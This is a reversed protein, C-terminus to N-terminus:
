SDTPALAGATKAPKTPIANLRRVLSSGLRIFPQEIFKYTLWSVPTAVALTAAFLLVYALSPKEFIVQLHAQFVQIIGAMLVFHILYFSFSIRGLFGIAANVLLPLPYIALSLIVPLFGLAFVVQESILRHNGIGVANYLVMMGAALLVLGNRKSQFSEPLSKHIYFSLIGCAFVPLQSPFWKHSFQQLLEQPQIQQFILQHNVAVRLCTDAAAGFIVTTLFFCLAVQWNKIRFFLLPAIMYFTAEVAISWGGPVVSNIYYPHWGHQLLATLAYYSIGLNWNIYYHERGPAFAYLVIGVWFMPLIRLVRRIFFSRVVARERSAARELTMFITFASVMFFLQVGYLGAFAFPKGRFDGGAFYACHTSIVGLIALGRLADLFEYRPSGSTQTNAM